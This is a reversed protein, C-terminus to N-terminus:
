RLVICIGATPPAHSWVRGSAGGEAFTTEEGVFGFTPFAAKLKALIIEECARDTDTVLDVGSKVIITLGTTDRSAHAAAIM